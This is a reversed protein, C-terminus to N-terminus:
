GRGMGHTTASPGLGLATDVDHSGLGRQVIARLYSAPDVNGWMEDGLFARAPRRTSARRTETEYM